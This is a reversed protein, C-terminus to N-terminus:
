SVDLVVRIMKRELERALREVLEQREYNGLTAVYAVGLLRGIRFDIVTSSIPGLPSSQLIRLGMALDAFGGLVLRQVMLLRQEPQLDQDVHAEFEGVFIEEMWRAVGAAADFLHVVTAAALDYGHPIDEGEPALAACEHLYGTLRGVARFREASSGPFGQQAMTENDLVGTRVPAFDRLAPPFERRDLVMRPLAAETVTHTARTLAESM